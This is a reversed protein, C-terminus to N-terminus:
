RHLSDPVQDRQSAPSITANAFSIVAGVGAGNAGGLRPEVDFLPFHYRARIKIRRLFIFAILSILVLLAVFPSFQIALSQLRHSKESKALKAASLRNEVTLVPRVDRAAAEGALMREMWYIRISMQALFSELQESPKTKALAQMISSELARNREAVSIAENISPSLSFVSRQPAGLYYDVVVAPRGTSFFRLLWDQHHIESPIQQDGGIVYVFLDISSDGAHYNLFELRQQFTSSDLLNQPDILFQSPRETLYAPLFEESVKIFKSPEEVIKETLALEVQATEVPTDTAEVQAIASSHIGAALALWFWKM